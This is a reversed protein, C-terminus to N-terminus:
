NNKDFKNWEIYINCYIHMLLLIYAFFYMIDQKISAGLLNIIFLFQINKPIVKNRISQKIPVIINM